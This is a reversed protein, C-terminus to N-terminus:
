ASRSGVSSRTGAPNRAALYEALAARFVHAKTVGTTQVYNVLLQHDRPDIEVVERRYPHGDETKLPM